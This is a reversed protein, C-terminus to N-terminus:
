EQPENKKYFGTIIWNMKEGNYDYCISVEKGQFWILCRNKYKPHSYKKGKEIVETLNSLFQEIDINKSKRREILHCLGRKSDGWALTISGIDKRYFADKIHGRKEKLLKNIAAQGKYGKFEEGLFEKIDPPNDEPIFEKKTEQKEIFEKVAEQKTQGEKIPIHNGKVTIWKDKENYKERLLDAYYGSGLSNLYETKPQQLLKAYYNM